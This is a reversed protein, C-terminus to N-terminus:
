TEEKTADFEAIMRFVEKMSEYAKDDSTNGFVYPKLFCLVTEEPLKQLVGYYGYLETEGLVIGYGKEDVSPPVTEFIDSMPALRENRLLEEYLWPELMLVATDGTMIYEYLADYNESNLESNVFNHESEANTESRISEIQEKSYVLYQTLGVLAGDEGTRNELLVSFLNQLETVEAGSLYVSGSYAVMVDNDRRGVFQFVTLFVAFLLIVAVIVKGKHHFWFTSIRELFPSEMRMRRDGYKEGAESTKPSERNEFDSM